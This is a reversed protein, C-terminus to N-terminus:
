KNRSLVFATRLALVITLVSTLMWLWFKGNNPLPLLYIVVVVFFVPWTILVLMLFNGLPNWRGPRLWYNSDLKTVIKSAWLYYKLLM